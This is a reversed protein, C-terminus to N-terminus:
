YTIINFAVLGDAEAQGSATAAKVLTLSWGGLVFAQLSVNVFPVPSHDNWDSGGTTKTTLATGVTVVNDGDADRKRITYTNYNTDDQTVDASFTLSMNAIYYNCSAPVTMLTVEYDTGAAVSERVRCSVPIGQWELSGLSVPRTHTGTVRNGTCFGTAGASAHLGIAGGAGTAHIHNNTFVMDRTAATFSVANASEFTDDVFNCDTVTNRLGGGLFASGSGLVTINSFTNDSCTDALFIGRTPTDVITINSM